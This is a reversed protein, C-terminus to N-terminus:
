KKSSKRRGKMWIRVVVAVILLPWAFILLYIVGDVAGQLFVVWDALAERFTSVPKWTESVASVSEDETLYINISSYDIQGDYSKLQAQLSEIEYRVNSLYQTVSLTDAVTQARSLIELYQAEEAQKNSLRTELDVYYETVDSANTYESEVYVSLEKLALFSADFQDSPVKVAINGTYSKNGRTVNSSEVNGGVSEVLQTIAPLAEQVSEVHLSLSGTKIIKRDEASVASINDDSDIMAKGGSSMDYAAEQEMEGYYSPAYSEVSDSAEMRYTSWPSCASLLLTGLLLSSFLLRKM